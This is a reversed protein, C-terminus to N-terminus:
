NEPTSSPMMMEMDVRKYDDDNENKKRKEYIWKSYRDYAIFLLVM